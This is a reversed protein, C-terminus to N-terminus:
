STARRLLRAGAAVGLLLGLVVRGLQSLAPIPAANAVFAAPLAVAGVHVIEGDAVGYVEDGHGGDAVIVRVALVPPEPGAADPDSALFTTYPFRYWPGESWGSVNGPVRARYMGAALEAALPDVWGHYSLTVIDQAPTRDCDRLTFGVAGHPRVYDPDPPAAPLTVSDVSV